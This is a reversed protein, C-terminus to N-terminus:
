LVDNGLVDGILMRYADGLMALERAIAELADATLHLNAATVGGDDAKHLLLGDATEHLSKAADAQGQSIAVVREELVKVAEAARRLAERDQSM